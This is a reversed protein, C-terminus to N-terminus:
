CRGSIMTSMDLVSSLIISFYVQALLQHNPTTVDTESTM